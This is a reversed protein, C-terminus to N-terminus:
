MCGLSEIGWRCVIKSQKVKMGEYAKISYQFMFQHKITAVFKIKFLFGCLVELLPTEYSLYQPRFKIIEM